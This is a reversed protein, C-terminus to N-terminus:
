YEIKCMTLGCAPATIGAKQRDKSGIINAIQGAELEGIGVKILTGAMIRVMNHLFGNGCVTFRIKEKYRTVQAHYITRKTMEKTNQSSCFAAFDHTGIFYQAGKNMAEVDLPKYIFEAYNRMQPIPYRANIIDYQYTKNKASYQPHFDASVLQADTVVIDKPLIRNLALPVKNMPIPTDATFSACQGLAHVGADTRGAGRISVDQQFFAKCAKELEEQISAFGRQRQWGHYNTGDYSLTLKINKM